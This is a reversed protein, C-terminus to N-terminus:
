HMGAALTSESQTGSSSESLWIGHANSAIVQAINALNTGNNHLCEPSFICYSHFRSELSRTSTRKWELLANSHHSRVVATLLFSQGPSSSDDGALRRCRAAM